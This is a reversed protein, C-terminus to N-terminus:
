GIISFFPSTYEFRVALRPMDYVFLDVDQGLLLKFAIQPNEILPFRLPSGSESQAKEFFNRAEPPMSDMPNPATMATPKLDESLNAFPSAPGSIVYDGLP